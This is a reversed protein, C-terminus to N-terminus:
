LIREWQPQKNISWILQYCMLSSGTNINERQQSSHMKSWIVDPRATSPDPREKKFILKHVNPKPLNEVPRNWTLDLIKSKYLGRNLSNSCVKNEQLMCQKQGATSTLWTHQLCYKLFIWKDAEKFELGYLFHSINTLCLLRRNNSLGYLIFDFESQWYLHTLFVVGENVVILHQFSANVWM